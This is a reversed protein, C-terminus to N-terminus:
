CASRQEHVLSAESQGTGLRPRASVRLWGGPAPAVRRRTAMRRCVRPLSWSSWLSPPLLAIDYIRFPLETYPRVTGSCHRVEDQDVNVYPRVYFRRSALTTWPNTPDPV